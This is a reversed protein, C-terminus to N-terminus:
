GHVGGGGARRRRERAMVWGAVAALLIIASAPWLGQPAIRAVALSARVALGLDLALVAFAVDAHSAGARVARQYFHSRHAEWIREGRALRVLLTVTADGLFVGLLIVAGGWPLGLRNIGAITLLGILLGLTVSGVDGMFLRAPSWNWLLFGAAAGALALAAMALAPDGYAAFWLALISCVVVAEVGAIGDTGDMFNYLNALWVLWGVSLPWALWGASVTWGGIEIRSVPQLAWVIGIALALQVTLRLAPHLDRRDDMWGLAGAGVATVAMFGVTRTEDPHILAVLAIGALFAGVIAVGGGRPTPVTHSSREGPLDVVAKSLAHRRVPGTLAAALLFCALPLGLLLWASM